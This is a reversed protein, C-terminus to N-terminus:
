AVVPIVENRSIHQGTPRYKWRNVHATGGPPCDYGEGAGNCTAYAGLQVGIYSSVDGSIHLTSASAVVIQANPITVSMASFEYYTENISQVQLRIRQCGVGWERPLPVTKDKPPGRRGIARFRLSLQPSDSDPEDLLVVGLDYHSFQTAFVTVGAEQGVSQPKFLLDISFSFLSHTQRRGVFSIGHQGSLEIPQDRGWLGTLNARSPVISLGKDGTSFTGPRPIRWHLFHSPLSSGEPFDYSDGDHNFQGEGPLDLDTPPLSWGSMRGQVPQLVPWDDKEWTVPFLVSERGMPYNLYEKGSRIALCMGWWNGDADQFLDAHGVTQFYNNTGRATLVPNHPAGEYPGTINRSRAMVVSHDMGTGGEAHLLYYWDDKKYIHPGERSGYLGTGNFIKVVNDTEGTELDIEMIHIGGSAVYAQGDDDWFLDPDIHEGEYLVPDSWAEPDSGFPDSSKFVTGVFDGGPVRYASIVYFEGEHYRITPAWFGYKQDTTNWSFGPLQSDRNWVHSILKWNILDKSAHIPLGPFALFTSSVCYFIGENQICSPDPHFGPLVPNYYTSNATTSLSTAAVAVGALFWGVCATPVVKM